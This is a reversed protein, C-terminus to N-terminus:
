KFREILMTLQSAADAVAEKITNHYTSDDYDMPESPDTRAQLNLRYQGNHLLGITLQLRDHMM